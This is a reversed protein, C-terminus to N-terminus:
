GFPLVNPDEDLELDPGTISLPAMSTPMTEEITPVPADLNDEFAGSIMGTHRRHIPAPAHEDGARRHYRGLV